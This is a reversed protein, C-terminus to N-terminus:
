CAIRDTLDCYLYQVQGTRAYAALLSHTYIFDTQPAANHCNFCANLDEDFRQTSDFQYSGFNWRGNDARAEGMFDAETWGARKEAVHVMDLPEGKLLWGNAARRYAGNADTQAQYAEIVIRIGIPLSGGARVNELADPSVYLDRAIGDKRDVRAFHIFETRYNDPLLVGVPASQACAALLLALIMLVLLRHSM